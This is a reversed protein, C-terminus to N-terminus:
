DGRHHADGHGLAMDHNIELRRNALKFHRKGIGKRREKELLIRTFM